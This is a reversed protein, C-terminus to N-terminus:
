QSRVDEVVPYGSGCAIAYLGDFVSLRVSRNAMYQELLFAYLRRSEEQTMYQAAPDLCVWGSAGCSLNSVQMMSGHRPGALMNIIDVQGCDLAMVSSVSVLGTILSAVLIFQRM